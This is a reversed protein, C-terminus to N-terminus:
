AREAEGSHVILLEGPEAWTKDKLKVRFPLRVRRPGFPEGQKNLYSRGENM